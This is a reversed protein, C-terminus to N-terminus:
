LIIQNQFIWLNMKMYSISFHIRWIIPARMRLSSLYPKLSERWCFFPMLKKGNEWRESKSSILSSLLIAHFFPWCISWTVLKLSFFLMQIRKVIPFFICSRCSSPYTNKWHCIIDLILFFTPLKYLNWLQKGYITLIKLVL